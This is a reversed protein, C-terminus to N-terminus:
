TTEMIEAPHVLGAILKDKLRYGNERINLTMAHHLLPRLHRNRDCARRLCRGPERLRPQAVLLLELCSWVSAV